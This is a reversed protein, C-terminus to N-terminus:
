GAVDRKTFTLWSVVHFVVFYVLLVAISFGLTMDPRLPTGEFYPRLNINAFLIYKGWNYHAFFAAMNGGVILFCLSFAIAMSSSRFAASIMFALTTFMVLEIIGFGYDQVLALLRSSEVITGEQGISILPQSFEGFGEIVGGVLFSFAINVITLMVAFLLTAAYKSCLIRTRSAPGVLLLKITGWSYEAAFMDAAVVVTFLIVVFMLKSSLNVISWINLAYPNSQHELHYENLRIQNAIEMKAEPDIEGSNDALKQKLHENTQILNQQWGEGRRPDQDIEMISTLLVIAAMLLGIMVWTRPRRYIKMNENQILSYYSSM